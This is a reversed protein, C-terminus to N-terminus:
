ESKVKEKKLNAALEKLEKNVKVTTAKENIVVVPPTAIKTENRFVVIGVISVAILMTAVLAVQPKVLWELVNTVLSSREKSIRKQIQLPLKDFYGDPVQFNNEKKLGSLNEENNLEKNEENM